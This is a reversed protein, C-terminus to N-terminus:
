MEHRDRRCCKSSLHVHPSHSKPPPTPCPHIDSQFGCASGEISPSHQRSISQQQFYCTYLDTGARESLPRVEAFSAVLLLALPSPCIHSRLVPFQGGIHLVPVPLAPCSVLFHRAQPIRSPHLCLSIWYSSTLPPTPRFTPCTSIHHHLYSVAVPLLLLDLSPHSQWNLHVSNM